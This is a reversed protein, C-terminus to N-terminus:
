VLSELIAKQYDQVNSISAVIESILRAKWVDGIELSEYDVIGLGNGYAVEKLYKNEVHQHMSVYIGLFTKLNVGIKIAGEKSEYVGHPSVGFVPSGSMGPFASVDVLFLPKGDFDVDPESAVSGTKWIPLANKMDYFGYPYGVLAVNTTPRVKLDGKAWEASIYRVKCDQYLPDVLPIVALDAEPCSSSTIWIPKENKTFLPLRVTKIKGPETDSIHFQLAITDGICPKNELPSSGTLVHYNTILYLVQVNLDQYAYFFGTGLSVPKDAKYLFIPTTCLSIHDIEM